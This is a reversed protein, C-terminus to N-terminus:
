RLEKHTAFDVDLLNRVTEVVGASIEDGLATRMGFGFKFAEVIRHYILKDSRHHEYSHEHLKYGELINLIFALVCGASPIPTTHLTDGQFLKAAVSPAFKPQYVRLDDMTVIGGNAQIETV